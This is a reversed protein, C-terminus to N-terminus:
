AVACRCRVDAAGLLLLAVDVASVLRFRRLMWVVVFALGEAAVSLPLSVERDNLPTDFLIFRLAFIRLIIELFESIDVQVCRLGTTNLAINLSYRAGSSM